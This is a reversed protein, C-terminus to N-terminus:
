YGNKGGAKIELAIQNKIGPINKSNNAQQKASIGNGQPNKLFKYDYVTGSSTDFVDPRASGKTGYNADSKDKYSKEFVLNSRTGSKKQYRRALKEAYSHKKTGAVHGTGGIKKEARKAIENLFEETDMKSIKSTKAAKLADYGKSVVKGVGGTLVTIALDTALGEGVASWGGEQYNSYADYAAIAGGLAFWVFEGTPDTYKVPNNAGYAYLSLNMSNYAGGNVKGTM